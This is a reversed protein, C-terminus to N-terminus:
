EAGGFRGSVALAFLNYSSTYEGNGVVQCALRQGTNNDACHAERTDKDTVSETVASDYVGFTAGFIHAYSLTAVLPGFPVSLGVTAAHRTFNPFDINTRPSPVASTEFFYGARAVVPHGLLSALSFDGGLRLSFADQYGKPLHIPALDTASETPIKVVTQIGHPEVLIEDLGSWGEWVADLEVDWAGPAASGWRAGIRAVAPFRLTLSAQDGRVEALPRLTPPLDVTLTGDGKFEVPPRFSAGVELQSLPSWLVGVIGTPTFKDTVQLTVVADYDAQDPTSRPGVFAYVSNVNKVSAFGSQLSLGVALTDMVQWGLALTPFVITTDSEIFSYRQPARQPILATDTTGDAALCCNRPDPFKRVGISSPGYVGLAFTLKELAAPKWGVVAFPAYFPPAENSVELWPHRLTGDPNSQYTNGVDDTRQYVVTNQSLRNDLLFFFGKQRALGAPNYYIATPDDARAVFAGGRGMSTAGNDPFEIGAAGAAIAWLLVAVASIVRM